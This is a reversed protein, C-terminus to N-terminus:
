VVRKGNLDTVPTSRGGIPPCLASFQLLSDAYIAQMLRQYAARLDNGLSQLAAKIGEGSKHLGAEAVFRNWKAEIEEWEQKTEMTVLHVQVKAEDRLKALDAKLDDLASM